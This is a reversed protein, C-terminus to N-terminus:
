ENVGKMRWMRNPVTIEFRAGKGPEGNETITIGTIALIERSLFLGLGTNKGFGRTFLRKKNEATIGVGDDEFVILISTDREHSSVRITTMKEGGYRLANDMLNYFVKEFLRDAFVEPNKPDIEVHVDRMPLGAVAKRICENANQWEPAAAGLEQYDKTFTIQHEITNAAQEEKKIYEILTTPNNIVEHSLELYGKLAMLQNLIDHRTISSLLNLQKNAQRITEEALKRETIDIFTGILGGISGDYNYFPAKYFIVDHRTGDAFRIQTEYRQPVPNDFVARDAATYEDALDAPFIDYATKGILENLFVGTDKEFPPNCGLYKGQTDKYFLPVPLTDILTSLFRSYEGVQQEARKRETIDVGQAITSITRGEPDLVNASNWLVTRIIGEKTLIPIEVTEWREGIVAKQILAMSTQRTEDPFLLDLTKGMVDEQSRGTLDEFAHNFRTISFGPDWTIIPANAYDFLNNLYANTERLAEEARKRETIDVGQAITSITRGDPDLVNASNWLVTRIIGEKTLIPIEVTEWREGIVAKQILAMSDQRTNDPFLIDLMKGLVDEQSRGTLDEFAHNFRTIHFGPDWTIIPANAHDFLNNLYANTERLEEEALKRATINDFIAVFFGKEPSYVSVSLWENLPNLYTTFREPVGNAAVRGYIAFLEPNSDKIGPIVETVRKGEVGVLGTLQSFAENVEIYIFDAPKDNEYLMRCFSFGDLMNTFLSHFRQESKRLEQEAMRREEIENELDQKSATVEKLNATMQNFAGSLEGIEDNHDTDIRFDLTGKGIFKTGDNLASISRLIRRKIFVYNSILFILVIGMLLFVLIANIRQVHNSEEHLLQSLSSADFIMEQNQVIFRSWAVDILEPDVPQGQTEKAAEIAAVSQTYVDHLRAKNAIISDVLVQQDPQDVSLRSIDDSLGTFRSEWQINQRKEEPHFLYDNSLYSLEYAGRVIDQAIEQQQGLRNVENYTYLLSASTLVFIICFVLTSLTFQTKIKM